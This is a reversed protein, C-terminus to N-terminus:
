QARHRCEFKQLRSSSSSTILAKHHHCAFKYPFRRRNRKWKLSALGRNFKNFCRLSSSRSFRDRNLSLGLPTSDISLSDWLALRMLAYNIRNGWSSSQCRSSSLSCSFCNGCKLKSMRGRSKSERWMKMTLGNLSSNIPLREVEARSSTLDLLFSFSKAARPKRESFLISTFEIRSDKSLLFFFNDAIFTSGPTSHCQPFHWLNIIVYCNRFTQFCSPFNYLKIHM